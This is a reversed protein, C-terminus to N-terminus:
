VQFESSKQHNNHPQQQHAEVLDREQALQGAIDVDLFFVGLEVERDHRAQDQAQQEAVQHPENGVEGPLLDTKECM